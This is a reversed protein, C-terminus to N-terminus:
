TTNLIWQWALEKWNSLRTGNRNKWNKNDYHEFFVRASDPSQGKELFYIEVHRILPPISHGYGQPEVM